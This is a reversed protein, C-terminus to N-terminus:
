RKDEHESRESESHRTSQQGRTYGTRFMLAVVFSIVVLIILGEVLGITMAFRM